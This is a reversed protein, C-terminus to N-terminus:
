NGDSHGDTGAASGTSMDRCCPATDECLRGPLPARAAVGAGHLPSALHLGGPSVAQLAARRGTARALEETMQRNEEV